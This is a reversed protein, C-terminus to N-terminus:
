NINSRCHFTVWWMADDPGQGRESTSTNSGNFIREETRARLLQAPGAGLVWKNQSPTLTLTDNEAQQGKRGAKQQQWYTELFTSRKPEAAAGDTSGPVVERPWHRRHGPSWTLPTRM